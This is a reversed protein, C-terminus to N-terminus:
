RAAGSVLDASEWLTVTAMPGVLPDCSQCFIRILDNVDRYVAISTGLCCDCRLVRTSLGDSVASWSLGSM